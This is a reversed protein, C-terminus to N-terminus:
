YLLYWEKKNLFFFDVRWKWDILGRVRPLQVLPYLVLWGAKIAEVTVVAQHMKAAIFQSPNCRDSATNMRSSSFGLRSAVMKVPARVLIRGM